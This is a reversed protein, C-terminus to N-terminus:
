ARNSSAIRTRTGLCASAEAAIRAVLTAAPEVDKILDVAEGAWVVATDFDAGRAAAGYAAHERELAGALKPERGHWRDLFRNRLARGTNVPPWDLKRVVDFVNTRVTDGGRAAVIRQKALSSGLAEVSAYFRTGILAGEAGLMLAAALGRGDAIGGAALVPTPAVADVVAPVLPLTARSAGHGGAESGQAVIVNAGAEQAIRAGELDQVQCILKCKASRILAAYPAPDGFSLMVAHPEYELALEVVPRAVSWTIFGVGWPERTEQKVCDLEHRLWAPDGYGGGVMGFGGANSVAAALRGGSVGGMPALVIPHRVGLMETLRTRV